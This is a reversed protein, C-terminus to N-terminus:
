STKVTKAKKPRPEEGTPNSSSRINARDKTHETGLDRLWKVKGQEILDLVYAKETLPEHGFWLGLRNVIKQWAPENNYYHFEPGQFFDFGHIYVPVSPDPRHRVFWDIALVGSTPMKRAPMGLASCLNRIEERPLWGLEKNCLVEWTETIELDYIMRFLIPSMATNMTAMVTSLVWTAGELKHEPWTMQLQADGMHVTCKTGTYEEYGKLTCNNFRVVEDFDNVLHGLPEGKRLSPGNGLIVIRSGYLKPPNFNLLRNVNNEQKRVIKELLHIAMSGPLIFGDWCILWWFRSWSFEHVGMHYWFYCTAFFWIAICAFFTRRIAKVTPPILTLWLGFLLSVPMYLLLYYHWLPLAIGWLRRKLADVASLSTGDASSM